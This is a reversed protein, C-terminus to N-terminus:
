FVFENRLQMWNNFSLVALKPARADSGNDSHRQWEQILKQVQNDAAVKNPHMGIVEGNKLVVVTDNIDVM